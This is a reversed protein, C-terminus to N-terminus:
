LGWMDAPILAKLKEYMADRFLVAVPLPKFAVSRFIIEGAANDRILEFSVLKHGGIEGEWILVTEAGERFEHTFHGNRVTGSTMMVQVVLDRGTLTRSFIPSSFVIEEALLSRLGEPTADASERFQRFPHKTM